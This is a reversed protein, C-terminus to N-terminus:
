SNQLHTSNSQYFICEIADHPFAFLNPAESVCARLFFMLDQAFFLKEQSSVLFDEPISVSAVLCYFTDLGIRRLFLHPNFEYSVRKYSTEGDKEKSVEYHKAGGTSHKLQNLLWDGIPQLNERLSSHEEPSVSAAFKDRKYLEDVRTKPFCLNFNVKRVNIELRFIMVLPPKNEPALIAFNSYCDGEVHGILIRAPPRIHRKKLGVHFETMPGDEDLVHTLINPIIERFVVDTRARLLKIGTESKWILIAIVFFPLDVSLLEVTSNIIFENHWYVVDYFFLMTNLLGLFGVVLLILVKVWTPIAFVRLSQLFEL